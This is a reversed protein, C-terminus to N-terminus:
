GRFRWFDVIGRSYVMSLCLFIALFFCKCMGVLESLIVVHFLFLGWEENGEKGEKCWAPEPEEKNLNEKGGLNPGFAEEGGQYVNEETEGNGEEKWKKKSKKDAGANVVAEGVDEVAEEASFVVVAVERAGGVVGPGDDLYIFLGPKRGPSFPKIVFRQM